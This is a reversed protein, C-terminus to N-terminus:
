AAATASPDGSGADYITASPGIPKLERVARIRIRRRVLDMGLYQTALWWSAGYIAYNWGPYKVMMLGTFYMQFAPVLYRIGFLWAMTAFGFSSLTCWVPKFWDLSWGTLSNLSAVNFSLILFTVWVRVILGVAPAARFWDRGAVLRLAGLVVGLEAGWLVLSVWPARVGGSYAGQCVLFFALHAWGVAMLAPGWPRAEAAETLEAMLLFRWGHPENPHSRTPPQFDRDHELAHATKPHSM